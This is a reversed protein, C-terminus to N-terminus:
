SLFLCHFFRANHFACYNLPTHLLSPHERFSQPVKEGTTEMWLISFSLIALLTHLLTHQYDILPQMPDSPPSLSPVCGRLVSHPVKFIVNNPAHSLLFSSTTPALLILLPFSLFSFSVSPRKISLSYFSISIIIYFM